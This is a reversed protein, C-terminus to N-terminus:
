GRKTETSAPNWEVGDVWGFRAWQSHNAMMWERAFDNNDFLFLKGGLLTAFAKINRNRAADLEAQLQKAERRFNVAAQFNDYNIKELEQLDQDKQELEATLRSIEAIAAKVCGGITSEDHETYASSFSDLVNKQKSTM